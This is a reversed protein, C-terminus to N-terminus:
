QTRKDTISRKSIKSNRQNSKDNKNLFERFAYFIGTPDGIDYQIFKCFVRYKPDNAVTKFTKGGVDPFNDPFSM